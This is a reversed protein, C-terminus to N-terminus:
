RQLDSLLYGRWAMGQAEITMVDIRTTMTVAKPLTAPIAREEHISPFDKEKRAHRRFADALNVIM